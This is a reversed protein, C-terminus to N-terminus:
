IRADNNEYSTWGWNLNWNLKVKNKQKQTDGYWVSVKQTFRQEDRAHRCKCWLCVQPKATVFKLCKILNYAKKLYFISKPSKCIMVNLKSKFKVCLPFTQGCSFFCAAAAWHQNQYFPTVPYWLWLGTLAWLSQSLLSCWFHVMSCLLFIFWTQKKWTSPRSSTHWMSLFCLTISQARSVEPGAM